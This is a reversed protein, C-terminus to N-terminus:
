YYIPSHRSIIQPTSSMDYIMFLNNPLIACWFEGDDKVTLGIDKKKSESISKWEDSRLLM